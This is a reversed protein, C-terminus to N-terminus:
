VIKASDSVQIGEKSEKPWGIGKRNELTGREISVTTAM